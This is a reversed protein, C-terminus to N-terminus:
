VQLTVNGLPRLSEKFAVSLLEHMEVESLHDGTWREPSGDDATILRRRRGAIASAMSELDISESLFRRVWTEVETKITDFLQSPDFSISFSPSWTGQVATGPFYTASM